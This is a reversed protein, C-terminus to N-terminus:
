RLLGAKRWRRALYYELVADFIVFLPFWIMKIGGAWANSILLSYSFQILVAVLSVLFLPVAWSKRLLLCIAGATGSFVAIAYSAWAWGPMSRYLEAQEPTMSAIMAPSMSWQMIFATVGMFQWITLLVGVILVTRAKDM